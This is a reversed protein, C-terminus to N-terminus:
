IDGTTNFGKRSLINQTLSVKLFDEPNFQVKSIFKLFFLKKILSQFYKMHIIVRAHSNTDWFFM